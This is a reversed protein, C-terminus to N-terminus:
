RKACEKMAETQFRVFNDWNNGQSFVAEKSSRGSITERDNAHNTGGRRGIRDLKGFFARSHQKRKQATELVFQPSM